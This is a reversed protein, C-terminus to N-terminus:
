HEPSVTSSRLTAQLLTFSYFNDRTDNIEIQVEAFLKLKKKISFLIIKALIWFSSFCHLVAFNEFSDKKLFLIYVRPVLAM